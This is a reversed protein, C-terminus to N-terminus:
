FRELYKWFFFTNLSLTTPPLHTFTSRSCCHWLLNSQCTCYHNQSLYQWCHDDTKFYNCCSELWPLLYGVQPTKGRRQRKWTWKELRRELELASWSSFSGRGKSVEGVSWESRRWGEEKHMRNDWGWAGAFMGQSHELGWLGSFFPLSVIPRRKEIGVELNLAWVWELNQLRGGAM